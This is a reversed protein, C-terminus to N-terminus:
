GIRSLRTGKSEKAVGNVWASVRNLTITQTIAPAKVEIELESGSTPLCGTDALSRAALALPKMFARPKWKWRTVPGDADKFSVWARILGLCTKAVLVPYPTRRTKATLDLLYRM